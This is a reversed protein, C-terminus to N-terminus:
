PNFQPDGGTQAILASGNAQATELFGPHEVWASIARQYEPMNHEHFGESQQLGAVVFGCGDLGWLIDCFQGWCM